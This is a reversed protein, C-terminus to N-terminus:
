WSPSVEGFSLPQGGMMSERYSNGFHYRKLRERKTRAIHRAFSVLGDYPLEVLQGQRNLFRAGAEKRFNTLLDTVPLLPPPEWSSLPTLLTITLMGRPIPLAWIEVSEIAGHRRFLDVLRDKVLAEYVRHEKPNADPDDFTFDSVAEPTEEFCL